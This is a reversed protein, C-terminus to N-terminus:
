YRRRQHFSIDHSKQSNIIIINVVRGSITLDSAQRGGFAQIHLIVDAIRYVPVFEVSVVDLARETMM